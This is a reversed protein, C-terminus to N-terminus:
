HPLLESLDLGACFHEGEGSLVAANVVAPLNIFCTNLQAVLADNVANRKAPRNLRVHVVAGAVDIRLLDLSALVGTAPTFVLPM